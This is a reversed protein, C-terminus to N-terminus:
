VELRVEMFYYQLQGHVSDFVDELECVTLHDDAHDYYVYVCITHQKGHM